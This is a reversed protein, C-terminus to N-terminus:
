DAFSPYEQRFLEMLYLEPNTHSLNKRCAIGNFRVKKPVLSRHRVGEGESKCSVPMFAVGIGQEVMKEVAQMNNIVCVTDPKIGSEKLVQDAIKRITSGKKSLIYSDRDFYMGLERPTITRPDLLSGAPHHESVAFVIEEEGLLEWTGKVMSPDNVAVLAMHIEDQAIANLVPFVDEQLVEITVNPYRKKFKSLVKPMMDLGWISTIGLTIKGTDSLGHLDEMLKKQMEVMRLATEVYLSGAQTLRLEGRTREFLPTGLEAELKALYQSLSSQTLFLNQAAKTMNGERAIEIVYQLYRVDLANAERGNAVTIGPIVKMWQLM